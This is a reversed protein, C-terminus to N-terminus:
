AVTELLVAAGQGGGGCMTAVGRRAGLAHLSRALTLVLRFGSAALPHGVAIAGGHVNVAEPSVGLRRCSALVVGAFAENVEWVDVNGVAVGQEALLREVALAPMEHLSGGVGAVAATGVVRALPTVGRRQVWADGAVIGVAAGDSMQSANGPTVTGDPTFAPSLGALRELSTDRLGEDQDFLGDDTIVPVQEGALFGSATAEAARTFSRFAFADADSRTIGLRADDRDAVTGHVTSELACTLGDHVVVTPTDPGDIPRDARSMSDMGGVLWAEDRPGVADAALGVATMSSLCVDNLTLGYTRPDFGAGVVVQRAPNQGGSAQLVNGMVSRNVADAGHRERLVTAATIGLDVASRDSLRGRFRGIPTRVGDVLWATM